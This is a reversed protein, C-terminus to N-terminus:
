SCLFSCVVGPLINIGSKEIRMMERKHVAPLKTKIRTLFSLYWITKFLESISYQHYETHCQRHARYLKGVDCLNDGERGETHHHDAQGRIPRNCFVCNKKDPDANVMKCAKDYGSDTKVKIKRKIDTRLYQHYRCYGKGFVPSNCGEVNCYKM